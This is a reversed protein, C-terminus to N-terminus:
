KRRLLLLKQKMEDESIEGRAFRERIIQISPDEKRDFAKGLLKFTFYIALGVIIIFLIMFFLMMLMKFVLGWSIIILSLAAYFLLGLILWLTLNFIGWWIKKSM